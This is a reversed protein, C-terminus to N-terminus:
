TQVSGSFPEMAASEEVSQRVLHIIDLMDCTDSWNM